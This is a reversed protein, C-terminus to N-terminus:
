RTDIVRPSLVSCAAPGSVTSCSHACPHPTHVRMPHSVSCAAPGSATSCTHTRVTSSHWPTSTESWVELKRQRFRRGGGPERVRGKEVASSTSDKAPSRVLTSDTDTCNPRGMTFLSDSATHSVSIPRGGVHVRASTCRAPEGPPGPSPTHVGRESGAPISADLTGPDGVSKLCFPLPGM